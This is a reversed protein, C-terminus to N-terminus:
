PLSEVYEAFSTLEQIASSEGENKGQTKLIWSWHGKVQVDLSATVKTGGPVEEFLVVTKTRTFRTENESEVREQPFLKLERIVKHGKGGPVGESEVYALDKEQRTVRLVRSQKSWKSMSEFDTYASYAKERPVKM